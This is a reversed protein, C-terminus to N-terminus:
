GGISSSCVVFSSANEGERQIMLPYSRILLQKGSSNIRSINRRTSDFGLRSAQERTQLRQSDRSRKLRVVSRIPAENEGSSKMERRERRKRWTVEMWTSSRRETERGEREGEGTHERM